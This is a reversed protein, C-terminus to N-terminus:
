GRRKRARVVKNQVMLAKQAEAPDEPQGWWGRSSM